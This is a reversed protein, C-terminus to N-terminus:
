HVAIRDIFPIEEDKQKTVFHIHLTCHLISFQQRACGIIREVHLLQLMPM